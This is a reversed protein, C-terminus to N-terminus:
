GEKSFLTGDASPPHNTREAIALDISQCVGDFNSDIDLNSFRMVKLDFSNLVEERALDYAMGEQSYHKSGDLEIVLRAKACYFDAIYNMIIKQRNFQLPYDKLYDYWLRNEHRTANTRLKRAFHKLKKNQPLMNDGTTITYQFCPSLAINLPIFKKFIGVV